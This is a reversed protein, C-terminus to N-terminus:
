HIFLLVRCIEEFLEPKICSFINSRSACLLLKIINFPLSQLHAMYPHKKESLSCMIISPRKLGNYLTTSTSEHWLIDGADFGRQVFLLVYDKTRTEVTQIQEGKQKVQKKLQHLRFIIEMETSYLFLITQQNIKDENRMLIVKNGALLVWRNKLLEM